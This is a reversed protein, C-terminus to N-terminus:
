VTMLPIIATPRMATPSQVKFLLYGYSCSCTEIAEYASFLIDIGKSHIGTSEIALHVTSFCLEDESNVLAGGWLGDANSM